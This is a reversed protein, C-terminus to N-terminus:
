ARQDGVAAGCTRGSPPSGGAPRLWTQMALGVPRRVIPTGWCSAQTRYGALRLATVVDVVGPDPGRGLGDVLRLVAARETGRDTM